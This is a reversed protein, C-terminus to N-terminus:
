NAKLSVLHNKLFDIIKDATEEPTLSSSDIRFGFSLDNVKNEYHHAIRNREWDNLKREGRDTLAVELGPDITFFIFNVNKLKYNNKEMIPYVIIVGYGRKNYMEVIEPVIDYNLKIYEGFEMFQDVFESFSDLEIVPMKLSRSLIRSVTSKGSNISGSIWINKMISDM